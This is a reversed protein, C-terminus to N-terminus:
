VVVSTPHGNKWNFFNECGIKISRIRSEVPLWAIHETIRTNECKMLDCPKSLPEGAVVDLGAAYVKGSDLAEKLEVQMWDAYFKNNPAVAAMAEIAKPSMGFVNENLGMHEITSFDVKGLKRSARQTEPKERLYTCLLERVAENTM